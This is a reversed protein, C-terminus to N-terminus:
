KLSSVTANKDPINTTNNKKLNKSKNKKKKSKKKQPKTVGQVMFVVPEKKAQQLLVLVKDQNYYVDFLEINRMVIDAEIRDDARLPLQYGNGEIRLLNHEKKLVVWCVKASPLEYLSNSTQEICLRSFDDKQITLNGDSSLIDLYLTQTAKTIKKSKEVYKFLNQNSDRLMDVSEYLAPLIIGLLAISILVELLTFAKRSGMWSGSV